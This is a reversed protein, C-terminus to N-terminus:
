RFWEYSNPCLGNVTLLAREILGGLGSNEGDAHAHTILVADIRRMGYRPFWELAAPLFTKGVDIVITRGLLPYTLIM